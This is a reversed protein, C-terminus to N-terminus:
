RGIKLKNVALVKLEAAEGSWYAGMITGLVLFLTTHEGTLWLGRELM